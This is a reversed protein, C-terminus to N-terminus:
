VSTILRHYYEQVGHYFSRCLHQLLNEVGIGCVFELCPGGRGCPM